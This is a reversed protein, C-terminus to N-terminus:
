EDSPREGPRRREDLVRQLLDTDAEDLRGAFAVLASARDSTEVLAALMTDVTHDAASRCARYRYGVARNGSRSLEGKSRLRELVTLVTNLALPEGDLADTLRRATMPEPATRLLDLLQQELEGRARTM